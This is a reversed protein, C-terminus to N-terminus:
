RSKPLIKVREGRRVNRLISSTESTIEGMPNVRFPLKSFNTLSIGIAKNQPIYFIEREKVNNKSKEFGIRLDIPIFIIGQISNATSFIPLKKALHEITLPALYRRLIGEATGAKEFEFVVELTEISM